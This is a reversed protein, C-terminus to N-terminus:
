HYSDKKVSLLDNLKHLDCHLRTLCRRLCSGCCSLQQGTSSVACLAILCTSPCKHARRQECIVCNRWRSAPRLKRLVENTQAAKLGIVDVPSDASVGAASVSGSVCLCLWGVLALPELKATLPSSLVGQNLGEGGELFQKVGVDSVAVGKDEIAKAVTSASALLWTSVGDPPPCSTSPGSVDSSHTWCGMSLALSPPLGSDPCLAQVDHKMLDKFFDLADAGGLKEECLAFARGTSVADEPPQSGSRCAIM